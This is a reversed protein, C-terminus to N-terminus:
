FAAFLDCEESDTAIAKNISHPPPSLFIKMVLGQHHYTRGGFTVVVKHGPKFDLKEWSM